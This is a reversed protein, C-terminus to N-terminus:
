ATKRQLGFLDKFVRCILTRNPRYGSAAFIRNALYTNFMLSKFSSMSYDMGMEKMMVKAVNVAAFSANFSFDLKWPSRAQCGTLGAHQKADRFSFEIQFRSRYYRLVEEGSLSTDNSFFLKHKGDPMQWIVLRIKCKLAKAYAILTYANGSLGEVKLKEMRKQDPKKLDIRGDMTRPRGRKGTRPGDYVYFLCANDRLRSVIKFGYQRIGDVFTRISFYADAVILDTLKLLDKHYRKIVGIYHELLSKDRLVLEKQCPTQHARLMICNNTDIDILGLGMIELGHRVARACGSWFRGIHPTKKGAKSIFCPDIAIAWRGTEGFFRRALSVNLKLWNIGKSRKREFNNRYTQEDHIGYREMQTFNPKRPIIMFLTLIEILINGFRKTVKAHSKEVADKCIDAYQDLADSQKM